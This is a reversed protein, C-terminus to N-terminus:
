FPFLPLSHTSGIDQHADASTAGLQNFAGNGSANVATNVGINIDGVGPFGGFSLPGPGFHDSGVHQDATASVPGYITNGVGNGSTNLASNQGMNVDGGGFGGWGFHDSGVDQTATASVPGYITNGVGNGAEVTASNSGYNYDGM